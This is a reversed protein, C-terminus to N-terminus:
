DTVIEAAGVVPAPPSRNLSTGNIAAAARSTWRLASQREEPTLRPSDRRSASGAAGHLRVAPDGRTEYLHAGVLAFCHTGGGRPPCIREASDEGHVQFVSKAIDFGIMTAHM